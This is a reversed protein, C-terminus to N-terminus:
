GNSFWRKIKLFTCNNIGLFTSVHVGYIYRMSPYKHKAILFLCIIINTNSLNKYKKFFIPFIENIYTMIGLSHNFHNLIGVFGNLIYKKRFKDSVIWQQLNRDYQLTRILIKNFQTKTYESIDIIERKTIFFGRQLCTIYLAVPILGSRGLKSYKPFLGLYKEYNYLIFESLKAPLRLTGLYRNIEYKVRIIWVSEATEQDNLKILRKFRSFKRREVWNGIMRKSDWSTGEFEPNIYDTKYM